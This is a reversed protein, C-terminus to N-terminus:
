LVLGQSVMSEQLDQLLLPLTLKHKEIDLYDEHSLQIFLTSESQGENDNLM